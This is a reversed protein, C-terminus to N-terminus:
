GEADERILGRRRRMDKVPDDGERVRSAYAANRIISNMDDSNGGQNRDGWKGDPSEPAFRGEDDRSRNAAARQRGFSARLENNFDAGALEAEQQEAMEESRRQQIETLKKTDGFVSIVPDVLDAVTPFTNKLLQRGQKETMGGREALALYAMFLWHRPRSM